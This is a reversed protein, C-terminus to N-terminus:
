PDHFYRVTVARPHTSPVFFSTMKDALQYYAIAERNRDLFIYCTALNNYAAALDLSIHTQPGSPAGGTAAGEAQKAAGDEPTAGSSDSSSSSSSSGSSTAGAGGGGASVAGGPKYKEGTPVADPGELLQVM